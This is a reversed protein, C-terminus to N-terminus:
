KDHTDEVGLIIITKVKFWDLGGEDRLPLPHHDPAFILRYPHDLDVSLQKQQARIGETLEHCRSPGSYPPLLDGLTQASCLLDLRRMLLRARKTGLKTRGQASGLSKELKKSKFRIDM